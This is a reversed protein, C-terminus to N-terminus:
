FMLIVYIETIKKNVEISKNLTNSTLIANVIYLATLFGFGLVIKVAITLKLKM